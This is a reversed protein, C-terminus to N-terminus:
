FLFGNCNHEDKVRLKILKITTNLNNKRIKGILQDFFDKCNLFDKNFIFYM